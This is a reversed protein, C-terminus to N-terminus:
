HQFLVMAYPGIALQLYVEPQGGKIRANLPRCMAVQNQSDMKVADPQLGM